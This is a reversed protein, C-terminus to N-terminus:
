LGLAITTGIAGIILAFIVMIIVMLLPLDAEIPFEKEIGDWNPKLNYAIRWGVTADFLGLLGSISVGAMRGLSLAAYYSTGIYILFSIMTLRSYRFNFKRSAIAASSNLIALLVIGIILIIFFQQELM